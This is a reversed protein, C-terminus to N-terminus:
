IHICSFMHEFTNAIRHQETYDTRQSLAMAFIVDNFLTIQKTKKFNHENKGEFVQM